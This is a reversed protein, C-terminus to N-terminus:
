AQIVGLSELAATHLLSNSALVGRNNALTRGASFDLPRGDLDSITGGAEQVVLSGAAQDWIKERYDPKAPSLLRLLLDGMGAALLTYKAQSDMRIPAAQIGATRAFEGIQDLNTHGAEFSRLLRANQLVHRSSAHLQRFDGPQTLSTVWTGQGRVALVLLGSGGM